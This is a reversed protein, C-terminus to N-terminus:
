RGACENESLGPALLSVQVDHPKIWAHAPSTGASAGPLVLEQRKCGRSAGCGQSVAGGQTRVAMLEAGGTQSQRQGEGERECPGQSSVPARPICTAGM